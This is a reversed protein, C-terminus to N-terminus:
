RSSRPRTRTPPSTAKGSVTLPVDIARALGAVGMTAVAATAGAVLGTRGVRTRHETAPERTAPATFTSTATM